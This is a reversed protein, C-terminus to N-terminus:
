QCSRDARRRTRVHPTRAFHATPSAENISDGPRHLVVRSLMTNMKNVSEIYEREPMSEAVIGAGANLHVTNGYQFASRIAIALDSRGSSDIWGVAGGYIGRAEPELDSIWQLARAKSIGSVTVGPFVAGLADWLTKGPSLRGSVRSSLHQVCRFRKVEMFDYVRVSDPECVSAIEEQALLVSLAHEKVEKADTFLEGRIGEDEREDAGRPRTGALPNTTVLGRGDSELLIEPSFGVGAVDDMRFCYSRAANNVQASATYTGLLDLAGPVRACRSLIAKQLAGARIAGTLTEV